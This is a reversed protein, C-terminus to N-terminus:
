NIFLFNKKSLNRKNLKEMIFIIFRKFSLKNDSKKKKPNELNEIIKNKLLKKKNNQNLQEFIITYLITNWKNIDNSSKNILDLM